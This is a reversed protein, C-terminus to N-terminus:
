AVDAAEVPAAEAAAPEAPAAEVVPEPEPPPPALDKLEAFYVLAEERFSALQAKSKDLHNAAKEVDPWYNTVAKIAAKLEGEASKVAAQADALAQESATTIGEAGTVAAKAAEVAAAREAMAPQADDITKTLDAVKAALSDEFSKLVVKDFESRKAPETKLAQPISAVMHDDFKFKKVLSVLQNLLTKSKPGATCQKLPEYAYYVTDNLQTRQAETAKAEKNGSKETAEAEGLQARAKQEAERAETVATKKGPVVEKAAELAAEAAVKAQQRATKDGEAGDVKAQTNGVEQVMDKEVVSLAEAVMDVVSNQYAHREEKYTGLAQGLMGGLMGRVGEPLSSGSIADAIKRCKAAPAAGTSSRKVM